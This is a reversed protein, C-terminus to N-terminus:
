LILGHQLAYRVLDANSHVGMKELVRARYTSVTKPSLGLEAAIQKLAKGSAVMRMVQYERDSLDEHLPKQLDNDLRLVLREALEESVYRRGQAVRRIATLLEGSLSEKTLYGSAGARLSRIAYQDESHVSLMLIPLRPYRARLKKLVDLGSEGPMSIDLVVVDAVGREVQEVVQDGNSAEGALVMDPTESVIQKLGERVIPHDDAILIRVM